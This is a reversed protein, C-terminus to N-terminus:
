QSTGPWNYRFKYSRFEEAIWVYTGGIKRKAWDDVIKSEKDNQAANQIMQYDDTLNAQHPASRSILKVLRFGPKGDNGNFNVPLSIEGVKMRDILLFLQPDLDSVDFKTDGNMPNMIRGGNRKSDDDSSFKECAKEWTITGRTIAQYISDLRLSSNRLEYTSVKPIFLIHRGKYEDGRRQLLQMFHFGYDTEFVESFEGEKLRFAIADFQPVFTGRPVFDWEGCKTNTGPDDSDIAEVCFTSAGSIIRKRVAELKERVKKKDQDTVKPIVTLQGIEVSSNILPLSDKPIRSYFARVEAPTVKVGETITREMAQALLRDKIQEFFDEKIQAISKGYFEELKKRGGIQQEFYKLRGEMENNVQADSVTVSDIEAHTLLLAQFLLEDLIEGRSESGMPLGASIAQLRQMEIESFLIPRDGVVAVVRDINKGQAFLSTQVLLFAIAFM